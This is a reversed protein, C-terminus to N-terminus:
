KKEEYIIQIKDKDKLVLNEFETSDQDNVTVRIVHSADTKSDLIQDKIFVKGWVAFFDGLTYPREVPSEVHIIGDASHTHIPHLCAGSQFAQDHTTSAGGGSNIGINAPMDQKQGNIMITLEPHIHFDTFEQELCTLALDRTSKQGWPDKIEPHKQDQIFLFTGLGLVGFTIVVIIIAKKM